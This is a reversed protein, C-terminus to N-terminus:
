QGSPIKKQAKPHKRTPLHWSVWRHGLLAKCKRAWHNWILIAARATAGPQPAVPHEPCAPYDCLVIWKFKKTTTPGHRKMSPRSGCYPCWYATKKQRWDKLPKKRM